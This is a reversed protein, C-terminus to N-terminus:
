GGTWASSRHPLPPAAYAVLLLPHLDVGSTVLHLFLLLYV